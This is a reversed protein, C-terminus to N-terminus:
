REFKNGTLIVGRLGHHFCSPRPQGVFVGLSIRSLAPIATAFKHINCLFQGNLPGFLQESGFVRVDLWVGSATGVHRDVKGRELGAVLNERHIQGVAPVQGM